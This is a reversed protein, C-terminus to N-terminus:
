TKDWRAMNWTSSNQGGSEQRPTIGTLGKKAVLIEPSYYLPFVPLAESFMKIFELQLQESRQPTTISNLEDLIADKRADNWGSVNELAFKNESAPINRTHFRESWEEVTVNHSGIYAGPWRNRNQASNLLRNPLNKINTLIGIKKWYDAIIAEAQEHDRRGAQCRFEFELREGKENVMVGDPGPKWGAEALLRKAQDPNYKYITATSLAKKFSKRIRSLPFHSVLREGRFMNQAMAERDIAVMLARRLRLDSFWPNDRSLSLWSWSAPSIFVKGKGEKEWQNRLIMAGDFSITSRMCFDVEGALVAALNTNSDDVVRVSVRDIKPRGLAFDKFAELEMRNGADWEVVRYPGAGVFNKNWFPLSAFAKMDGANFAEQLLHRPFARVHTYQVAYAENYLEKWHIVITRDDPTEIKSILEPVLRDPMPFDPHKAIQWGFEFDKSTYPKGDHWKLRPRLKYVTIMTKKQPDIKWTGKKVSPLEEALVPVRELTAPNQGVLGADAMSVHETDRRNHYGLSTVQRETHIVIRKKGTQAAQANTARSSFFAIGAATTGAMRVFERRTMGRKM